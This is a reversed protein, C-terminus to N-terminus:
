EGWLYLLGRLRKLPPAIMAISIIYGTYYIRFSFHDLERSARFSQPVKLSVFVPAPINDVRFSLFFNKQHISSRGLFADKSEAIVTM